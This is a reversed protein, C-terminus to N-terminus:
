AGPTAAARVVPRADLRVWEVGVWGEADPTGTAVARAPPVRALADLRPVLQHEAAQRLVEQDPPLVKFAERRLLEALQPPSVVALTAGEPRLADDLSPYRHAQADLALAVLRDDPSF